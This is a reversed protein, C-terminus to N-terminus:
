AEEKGETAYAFFSMIPIYMIFTHMINVEFVSCSYNNQAIEGFYLSTDGFHGVGYFIGYRYIDDSVFSGDNNNATKHLTITGQAERFMVFTEFLKTSHGASQRMKYRIEM